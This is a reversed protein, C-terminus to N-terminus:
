GQSIELQRVFAIKGNAGPFAAQTEKPPSAGGPMIAALLLATIIAAVTTTRM